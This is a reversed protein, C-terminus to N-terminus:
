LINIIQGEINTFLRDKAVPLMQSLRRVLEANQPFRSLKRSSEVRLLRSHAESAM